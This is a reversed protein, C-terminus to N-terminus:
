DEVIAYGNEGNLVRASLVKKVHRYHLITAIAMVVVFICILMAGTDNSLTIFFSFLLVKSPGFSFLKKRRENHYIYIDLAAFAVLLMTSFIKKQLTIEPMGFWICIVVAILLLVAIAIIANRWPQNARVQAETPTQSIITALTKQDKYHAKLEEFINQRSKGNRLGESVIENLNKLEHADSLSKQQQM